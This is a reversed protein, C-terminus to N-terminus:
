LSRTEQRAGLTSCLYRAQASTCPHQSPQTASTRSCPCTRAPQSQRRHYALPVALFPIRCTPNKIGLLKELPPAVWDGDFSMIIPRFLITYCSPWFPSSVPLIMSMSIRDPSISMESVVQIDSLPRMCSRYCNGDSCRHTVPEEKKLRTIIHFSLVSSRADIQSGPTRLLFPIRFLHCPAQNRPVVFSKRNCVTAPLSPSSM